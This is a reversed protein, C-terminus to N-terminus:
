LLMCRKKAPKAPQDFTLLKGQNNNNEQKSPKNGVKADYIDKVLEGFCKEVNSGDKASAEFFRLNFQSAFEKGTETSVVRNPLDTKNGVLLKAVPGCAYRDIETLWQRSNNFSAQDTVDYVLIVGHAGRYYSSTITRFREQGATDWIQMKITKGDVETNRVKFDVGITSIFNGTFSDDTFRLLLSSKGVGSDGVMLIKFLYDHADSM